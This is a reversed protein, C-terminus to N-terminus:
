GHTGSTKVKLWQHFEDQRENIQALVVEPVGVDRLAIEVQSPLHPLEGRELKYLFSPQVCLLKALKTRSINAWEALQVVPSISVVQPKLQFDRLSLFPAIYKRAMSVFSHYDRKLQERSYGQDVLYELISPLIEAYCGQENALVASEHIDCERAFKEQTLHLQKRAIRIPNEEILVDTTM